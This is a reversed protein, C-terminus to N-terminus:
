MSPIPRVGITCEQGSGEAPMAFDERSLLLTFAGDKNQKTLTATHLYTQTSPPTDGVGVFVEFGSVVLDCRSIKVLLANKLNCPIQTYALGAPNNATVNCKGQMKVTNKTSLTVASDSGINEGPLLILLDQFM